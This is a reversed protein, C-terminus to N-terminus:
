TAGEAVVDVGDYALYKHGEPGGLADMEATFDKKVKDVDVGQKSCSPLVALAVIFLSAYLLRMAHSWPHRAARFQVARPLTASDAASYSRGSLAASGDAEQNRRDGQRPQPGESLHAHLEHHHPLSLPPVPGRPRRAARRHGRRPQRRDLSLGAAPDGARSLARREVLLQPLQHHLLLLPHMGLARRAQGAGGAIAAARARAGADQDEALARDLRIACLPAD